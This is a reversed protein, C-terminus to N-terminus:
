PLSFIYALATRIRYLPTPTFKCRKGTRHDGYRLLVAIFGTDKLDLMTLLFCYLLAVIMLLKKRNEEFWLRPSEMALESKNFRFAMEIQWRRAYAFVIKWADQPTEVKETTLLYWPKRGKKGPRCIILYLLREPHDPHRVPLWLLSVKRFNGTETDWVKRVSYAKRGASWRYTNRISGDAGMLKYKGKWRILFRLGKDNLVKAV